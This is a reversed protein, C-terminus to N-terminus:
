SLSSLIVKKNQKGEAINYIRSRHRIALIFVDNNKVRYVVRWSGVRIKWYGSLKGRMPKGYIEPFTTLKKQVSLNLQKKIASDILPLDVELVLKDYHLKNAGSKKM